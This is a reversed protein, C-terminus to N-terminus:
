TFIIADAVIDATPVFCCTFTLTGDGQASCYVGCSSYEPESGLDGGVFVSAAATVGAVSVTQQGNAWGTKPLTINVEQRKTTVATGVILNGDAGYATYGALVTDASATAATMDVITKGGYVVKSVGM